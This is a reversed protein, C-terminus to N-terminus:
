DGAKRIRGIPDIAIKKAGQKILTGASPFWQSNGIADDHEWLVIQRNAKIARVIKIGPKEAEPPFQLADGLSLSMLFKADKHESHQRRVLAEKRKLRQAAEFLSVVDSVIKGDPLRFIAMHHNDSLAVNGTGVPLMFKAQSKVSIRAKRIVSSQNSDAVRPYPPLDQKEEKPKGKNAAAIVNAEKKWAAVKERIRDDRINSIERPTMTEIPKRVPYLHYKDDEKEGKGYFTEEHLAGSVKKRVKHSVVIEGLAKAVDERLTKWPLPFKETGGEEEKKYHRSLKQELGTDTCAVVLADVAHHKHNDRTKQEGGSLLGNLGWFHRLKATMQGPVVNVHVPAKEGVDPWLRKLVAVAENAAYGTDNLQRSAFDKPMKSALFRKVKGRRMRKEEQLKRLRAVVEDWQPKDHLYEYPTQNKKERNADVHGLTKNAYSDDLSRSRPWIHEVEFEGRAFLADFGIHKGTYPCRHGCEEWLLWKEIDDRSPEPMGKSALDNKAANRRKTQAAIAKQIEERAHKPKGIDRTLEVRIQAPKGHVAILNNVVKRLENQVRVVVPNRIKKLREQEEKDRPSPLRDLVEGTPQERNPFTESRWKAWDPSSRLAGFLVGEGLYPLFAQLAKVSFPDWGQAFKLESLAKAQEASIGYKDAFQQRLKKRAEQRAKERHIVVRQPGAEGYDARWIAAPVEDRMAQKHPHNAWDKGLCGALKTELKHGLLSKDGGQEELNFKVSKDLGLTSRVKAWSMSNQTQLVALLKARQEGQVPEQNGSAFKLNNLTELMRKQQSLWSGRRCLPEDPFFPCEGLTSKRWFVPRQFFIITHLEDRLDDSRLAAHHQRQREWITAFEAEVNKRLARATRRRMEEPNRNHLWQGLTLGGQQLAKSTKESDSQAKEEEKEADKDEKADEDKEVIDRGKFHRRQALHYLARGLEHPELKEGEAARARLGYPEQRMLARWEDTATDASPLLGADHLAARLEHARMRRRRLLRRRLRARRREQNLPVRTKPELSEPFIRAGLRLVKGAKRAPDYAVAAFGVSTTGIDLGLIYAM